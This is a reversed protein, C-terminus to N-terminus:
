GESVELTAELRLISMSKNVTALVDIANGSAKKYVVTM